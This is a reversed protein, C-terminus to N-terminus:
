DNRIAKMLSEWGGFSQILAVIGIANTVVFGLWYHRKGAKMRQRTLDLEERYLRNGEDSSVEAHHLISVLPLLTDKRMQRIRNNMVGIDHRVNRLEEQISAIYDDREQLQGIAFVASRTELQSEIRDSLSDIEALRLRIAGLSMLEPLEPSPTNRPGREEESLSRDSSSRRVLTPSFDAAEGVGMVLFLLLLHLRM